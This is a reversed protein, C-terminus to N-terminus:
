FNYAVSFAYNRPLGPRYYQKHRSDSYYAFSAYKEDTVNNVTWEVTWGKKQFRLKMNLVDYGEYTMANSNSMQYEGMHKFDATVSWIKDLKVISGLSYQHYPSHRLINGILEEDPNYTFRADLYTYSGYLYVQEIPKYKLSVEVGQHRTDGINEHIDVSPDLEYPVSEIQDYYNIYFYSFQYDLTNKLILGKIGIDYNTIYEPKLDPNPVSSWGETFLDDYDPPNFGKGVNGFVSLKQNFEYTFGFKPTLDSITTEDSTDDETGANFVDNWDYHVAEYHLGLVVKLKNYTIQDQIYLGALGYKVEGEGTLDGIIGTYADRTFDKETSTEYDYSGGVTIENKLNMLEVEKSLRLEGGIASIDDESWRTDSWSGEQSTERLHIISYMNVDNKFRNNYSLSSTYMEKIYHNNEDNFTPNTVFTLSDLSSTTHRDSYSYENVFNFKGINEFNKTLKLGAHTSEYTANEQYGDTYYHNGYVYYGLGNKAGNLNASTKNSRFQAVSQKFQGHFGDKPEKLVINIVGSMANSGYFASVPGKIVEIKEINEMDINEFDLDGTADTMPVGDVILLVGPTRWDNGGIGRIFINSRETNGTQEMYIGPITMLVQSMNTKDTNNLVEESITYVPAGVTKVTYQDSKKSIVVEDLGINSKKLPINLETKQGAIIKINKIKKNGYGILSIEITYTGPTLKAILYDGNIDATTGKKIEKIIIAATLPEKTTKDYVKGALSGTSQGLINISQIIFFLLIIKRM